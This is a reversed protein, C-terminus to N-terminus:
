DAIRFLRKHASRQAPHTTRVRGEDSTRAWRSVSLDTKKGSAAEREGQGKNTEDMLDHSCM